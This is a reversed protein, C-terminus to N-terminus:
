WGTRKKAKASANEPAFMLVIEKWDSNKKQINRYDPDLENWISPRDNIAELFKDM